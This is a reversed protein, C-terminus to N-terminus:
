WGTASPYFGLNGVRWINPPSTVTAITPVDYPLSFVTIPAALAGYGTAYYAINQIESFQQQLDTVQNTTMASPFGDVSRPHRYARPLLDTNSTKEGPSLLAVQSQLRDSYQQARESAPMVMCGALVTPLAVDTTITYINGGSTSAAVVRASLLTRNTYDWIHIRTTGVTPAFGSTVPNAGCASLTFSNASNVTSVYVSGVFGGGPVPLMPWRDAVNDLWGGGTGGEKITAPLTVRFSLSLDVHAVTTITADAFEPAQATVAQAVIQTLASSGARAFNNARTGQVTYAAHTTGPGQCAPYVFADYVAASAGTMWSRVAGWAGGNQPASLRAKLRKRLAADNDANTGNTLGGPDVVCTSASFGPPSVWTLIEGAALNTNTGVDIGVIGVLGGNSVTFPAVTKYRKGTKNSTLEQGQAYTGSSTTTVIVNGTAGAGSSRYVGYIGALRDLDDGVASDPLFADEKVRNNAFIGAVANVYASVDAWRDSGKSTAAIASQVAIGNKVLHQRYFRLADSVLQDSSPFDGTTTAM